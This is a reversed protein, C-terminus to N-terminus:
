YDRQSMRPRGAGLSVVLADVSMAGVLVLVLELM